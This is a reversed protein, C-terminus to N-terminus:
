VTATTSSKVFVKVQNRGNEKAQYLAQDASKILHHLDQENKDVLTIGVSITFQIIDGAQTIVRSEAIRQRLREAAIEAEALSTNPLLTIFEEGGFRALLDQERMEEQATQSIIKLVEDGVDHGYHDNIHKFHDVDFIFLCLPQYHRQLRALESRALREFQRRNNLNTLMDTHALQDLVQHNWEELMHRLFIQRNKLTASWSIYLSFLVLPLYVLSFILVAHLQGVSTRFVGWLTVASIILSVLLVPIFRVQTGLNALIIFIVSAYQFTDVDPSNSLVLLEFWLIAAGIISIPLLLDLLLINRSYRFLFFTLCVALFVYISRIWISLQGIDPLMFWDALGYSWYALQGLLNVQLLFRRHHQNHFDLFTQRLPAPIPAIPDQLARNLMDRSINLQNCSNLPKKRAAKGKVIAAFRPSVPRDPTEPQM